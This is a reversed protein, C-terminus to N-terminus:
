RYKNLIDKGSLIQKVQEVYKSEAKAEPQIKKAESLKKPAKKQPPAAYGKRLYTEDVDIFGSFEPTYPSEEVGIEYVDKGKLKLFSVIPLIDGDGLAFGVADISSNLGLITGDIIQRTDLKNRRRSAIPTVADYGKAAIYENFDRNRKAVYSYFKCNVIEFDASIKEALKKFGECSIRLSALDILLAIKPKNM